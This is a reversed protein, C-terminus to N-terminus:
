PSVSWMRTSEKSKRSGCILSAISLFFGRLSPDTNRKEMMKRMANVLIRIVWLGIILIILAVGIKIGYDVIMEQLKDTNNIMDDM